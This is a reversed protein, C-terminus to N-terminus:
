EKRISNRIKIYGIIISLIGICFTGASKLFELLSQTDTQEHRDFGRVLEELQKENRRGTEAQAAIRREHDLLTKDLNDPSVAAATAFLIAVAAGIVLLRKV